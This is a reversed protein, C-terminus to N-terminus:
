FINHFFHSRPLYAFIQEFFSVKPLFYRVQFPKQFTARETGPLTTNISRYTGSSKATKRIPNHHIAGNSMVSFFRRKGTGMAGPGYKKRGTVESTDIALIVLDTM